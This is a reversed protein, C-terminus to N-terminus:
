WRGGPDGGSLARGLAVTFRDLTARDAGPSEVVGFFSGAFFGMKGPQNPPWKQWADFSGPGAPYGPMDFLIVRMPPSGAYEARCVRRAGAVGRWLRAEPPVSKGCDAAALLRWGAMAAPPDQYPTILARVESGVALAAGLVGIGLIRKGWTNM